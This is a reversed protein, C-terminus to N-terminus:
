GSDHGQDFNAIECFNKSHVLGQESNARMRL